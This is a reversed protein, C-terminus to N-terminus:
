KARENKEKEGKSKEVHVNPREFFMKFAAASRFLRNCINLKM